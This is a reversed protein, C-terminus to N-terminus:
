GLTNLLFFAGDILRDAGHQLTPNHIINGLHNTTSHLATQALDIVSGQFHDAVSTHTFNEGLKKPLEDILKTHGTVAFKNSINKGFNVM